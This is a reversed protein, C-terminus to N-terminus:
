TRCARPHRSITAKTIGVKVPIDNSQKVVFVVVHLTGLDNSEVVLLDESTSVKDPEIGKAGDRKTMNKSGLVRIIGCIGSRCEYILIVQDLLLAGCFTCTDRLDTVLTAGFVQINKWHFQIM